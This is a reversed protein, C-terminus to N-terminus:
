THRRVYDDRIKQSIEDYLFSIFAYRRGATVPMVEHLLSCSFVIADGPAGTFTQEGYEPFRILGGEFGDNLIISLAFRRHAVPPATNDRHPRFYGGSGSDYCGVLYREIRTTQFQFARFVFPLLRRQLMEKCTQLANADSIYYDLRRRYSLDTRKVIQGKNEILGIERGGNKEYLDILRRCFAPDFIHPVILIPAIQGNQPNSRVAGVLSLSRQVFFDPREFTDINLIQLTPSLLFAKPCLVGATSTAAGYQRAANCHADLLFIFGDRQLLRGAAFDSPDSCVGVFLARNGDFIKGGQDLASLAAAVGPQRTSGFFFLLIPRGALEDFAIPEADIGNTASFWPAPDGFNLPPREM